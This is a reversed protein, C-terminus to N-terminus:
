VSIREAESIAQQRQVEICNPSIWSFFPMPQAMALECSVSQVTAEDMGQLM